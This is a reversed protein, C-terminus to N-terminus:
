QAVVAIGDEADPDDPTEEPPPALEFAPNRPLAPGYLAAPVDQARRAFLDDLRM